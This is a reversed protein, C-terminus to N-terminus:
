TTAVRRRSVKIVVSARCARASSSMAARGARAQRRIEAPAPAWPGRSYSQARRGIRM